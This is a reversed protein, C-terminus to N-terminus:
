VREESRILGRNPAFLYVMLFIIGLVTTMSGSISADLYHALWYGLIASIVGFFMSLGIMKKLDHTLLYSTAAPAIMLAVVLIAGVADFAGVITVSSVSMLGYHFILPSIGLSAALGPDFTTVKLEKFFLLLLVFSMILIVGMVWLSKPGLDIGSFITFKDMSTLFLFLLFFIKPSFTMLSSFFSDEMFFASFNSSVATFFAAEISTSSVGIARYSLSTTLPIFFTILSCFIVSKIM